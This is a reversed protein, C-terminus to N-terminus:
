RMNEYHMSGGQAQIRDGKTDLWTQGPRISDNMAM